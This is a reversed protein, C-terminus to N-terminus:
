VRSGANLNGSTNIATLVERRDQLLAPFVRVNIGTQSEDPSDRNLYPRVYTNGPASAVATTHLADEDLQYDSFFARETAQPLDSVGFDDIRRVFASM